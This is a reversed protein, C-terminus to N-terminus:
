AVRHVFVFVFVIVRGLKAPAALVCGTTPATTLHLKCRIWLHIFHAVELNAFAPATIILLTAILVIFLGTFFAAFIAM